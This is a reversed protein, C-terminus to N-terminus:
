IKGQRFAEQIKITKEPLLKRLKNGLFLWQLRREIPWSRYEDIQEQSVYYSFGKRQESTM